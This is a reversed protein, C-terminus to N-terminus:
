FVVLLYCVRAETAQSSSLSHSVITIAWGIAFPLTSLLLSNKRGIHDTLWGTLPAGILAGIPLLAYFLGEYVSNHLYTTELDDIVPSSYGIAFGLLLFGILVVAVSYSVTSFRTDRIRRTIRHGFEPQTVGASITGSRSVALLLHREEERRM